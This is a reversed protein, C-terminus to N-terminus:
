TPVPAARTALCGTTGAAFSLVGLAAVCLALVGLIAEGLGAMCGRGSQTEAAAFLIVGGVVGIVALVLGGVLLLRHVVRRRRTARAAFFGVAAGLPIGLVVVDDDVGSGCAAGGMASGLTCAGSAALIWSVFYGVIWCHEARLKPVLRRDSTGVGSM